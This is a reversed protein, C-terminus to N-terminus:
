EVVVEGLMDPHPGCTYPYKGAKDFTRSYTDGPMLRDSELSESKFLVSHSTRKEDNTWTVTDGAKVTISAPQFAHHAIRVEGTGAAVGGAAVLLGALIGARIVQM